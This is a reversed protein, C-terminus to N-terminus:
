TQLIISRPHKFFAGNSGLCGFLCQIMDHHTSVNTQEQCLFGQLAYSRNTPTAILLLWQMGNCVCM